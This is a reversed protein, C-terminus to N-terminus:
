KEFLPGEPYLSNTLQQVKNEIEPFKPKYVYKKPKFKKGLPVGKMTFNFEM